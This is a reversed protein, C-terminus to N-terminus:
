KHTKVWLYADVLYFYIDILIKFPLFILFQIFFIIEKM